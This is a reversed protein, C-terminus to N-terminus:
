NQKITNSQLSVPGGLAQLTDYIINLYIVLFLFTEFLIFLLNKFAYKVYACM